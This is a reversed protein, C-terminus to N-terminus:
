GACLLRGLRCEDNLPSTFAREAGEQRLLAFMDASVGATAFLRRAISLM